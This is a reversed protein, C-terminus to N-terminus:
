FNCGVTLTLENFNTGTMYSSIGSANTFSYNISAYGKIGIQPFLRSFKFGLDGKIQKSTLYDYERFLYRDIDHPKIQSESPPAYFGDDKATGSGTSYKVGLMFSYMNEEKVINNNAYLNFGIKRITQDRYFPYVSATQQRSYYDIGGKLIWIPNLNNNIGVNITYEVKANYSNKDGVKLPDYYIIRDPSTDPSENKIVNELNELKENYFVIDFSHLNNKHRYNLKGNYEILKSNHESYVITSTSRKGYYGNRKKYSFENFWDLKSTINLKAQLSIGHYEDVLPRNDDGKTYRGGGFDEMKGYFAGYSVLSQYQKDTTGYTKFEIGEVRRRYYYNVGIDLRRIIKYTLGASVNMDLLTNKHRLDKDKAYNASTFDFKLGGFIGKYINTSIAGVLNYTELKKKGRMTDSYEVIDFPTQTPDIFVSGGMNKGEFSNYSVKGWFVTKPNLRYFSEINAGLKSSNNSQYYNIFKGNNKNFYIEAMSINDITLEKLGSANESTLWAESQKVYNFDTWNINKNQAVVSASCIVGGLLLFFLKLFKLM